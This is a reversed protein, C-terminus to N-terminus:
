LSFERLAANKLSCVKPFELELFGILNKHHLDSFVTGLELWFFPLPVIKFCM